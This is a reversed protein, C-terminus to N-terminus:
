YEHKLNDENSADGNIQKDDGQNSELSQESEQSTMIQEEEDTGDLLRGYHEILPNNAGWRERKSVTKKVNPAMNLLKTLIKDKKDKSLNSNLVHYYLQNFYSPSLARLIKEVEQDYEFGLDKFPNNKTYIDGSHVISSLIKYVNPVNRDVYTRMLSARGIQSPDAGGKYCRQRKTNCKKVQKQRQNSKRNKYTQKKHRRNNHSRKNYTRKKNGSM